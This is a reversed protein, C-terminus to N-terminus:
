DGHDTWFTRAPINEAPLGLCDAPSCALDSRSRISSVLPIGRRCVFIGQTHQAVANRAAYAKATVDFYLRTMLENNSATCQTGYEAFQTTAEYAGRGAVGTRRIVYPVKESLLGPNETFTEFSREIANEAMYFADVMHQTNAAMTSELTATSVTALALVTLLLLFVLCVPLATGPGTPRLFTGTVATM